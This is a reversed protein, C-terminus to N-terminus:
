VIWCVCLVATVRYILRPNRRLTGRLLQPQECLSWKRAKKKRPPMKRCLLSFRTKMRSTRYKVNMLLNLKVSKVRRRKRHLLFSYHFHSTLIGSCKELGEWSSYLMFQVTPCLFYDEFYKLDFRPEFEAALM